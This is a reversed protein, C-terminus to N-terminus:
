SHPRIVVLITGEMVHGDESLAKWRLENRGAPLNPAQVTFSDSKGTPAFPLRKSKSGNVDRIQTLRVPSAFTLAISPPSQELIAGSEPVSGTLATHAGVSLPLAALAASLVLASFKM